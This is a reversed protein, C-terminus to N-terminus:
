GRRLRAEVGGATRSLNGALAAHPAHAQVLELTIAQRVQPKRARTSNQTTNPASKSAM